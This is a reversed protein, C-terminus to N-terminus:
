TMDFKFLINIALKILTKSITDIMNMKWKESISFGEFSVFERQWIM